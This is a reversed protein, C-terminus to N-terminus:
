VLYTQKVLTRTPIPIRAAKIAAIEERARQADRGAKDGAKRAQNASVAGGVVSAVGGVVATVAAM